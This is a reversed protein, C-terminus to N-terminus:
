QVKLNNKHRLPNIANAENQNGKLLPDSIIAEFDNIDDSVPTLLRKNLVSEVECLYTRLSEDTFVRESSIARLARKVSKIVSEWLGGM